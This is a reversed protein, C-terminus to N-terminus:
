FLCSISPQNFWFIRNAIYRLLQWTANSQLAIHLQYDYDCFNFFKESINM